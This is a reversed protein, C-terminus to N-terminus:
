GDTQAGHTSDVCIDGPHLLSHKQSALDLPTANALFSRDVHRQRGVEASSGQEIENSPSCAVAENGFKARAM